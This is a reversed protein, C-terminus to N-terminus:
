SFSAPRSPRIRARGASPRVRRVAGHCDGIAIRARARDQSEVRGGLDFFYGAPLPLRSDLRARVDAAVSALDRGSVSGEVAIRRTGAERRIAAPGFTQTSRRGGAGLPRAHQRPRRDAAHTHCRAGRRDDRLKLILDFRRQGIWIESAEEGVLGDPRCPHHRWAGTRRTGGRRAQRRDAIPAAGHATRGAPRDSGRVGRIAQEAREALRALQDLDPGFIRVSVDAPTGGLGEDIRM